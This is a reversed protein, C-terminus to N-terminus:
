MLRLNKTVFLHDLVSQFARDDAMKEAKRFLDYVEFLPMEDYYDDIVKCFIDIDWTQDLYHRLLIWSKVSVPLDLLERKQLGLIM